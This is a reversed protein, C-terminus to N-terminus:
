EVGRLYHGKTIGENILKEHMESDQVEFDNDIIDIYAKVIERIFNEEEFTFELRFASIGSNYMDELHDIMCLIKSNYIISRCFKDQSVPFEQGKEDKLLYKSQNCTGCRKDKNCNRTLVGMPCYESIMLPIRSYVIAEAEIDVYSLVQKIEHLNLEPSLGISKINENQLHKITESNFVNLYYDAYMTYDSLKNIMGINSVLFEDIGMDIAEDLINYQNNRLIRPPCYVINKNHEKCVNMADKLTDIDEYYITDINLDAIKRLQSMKRIKVNVKTDRVDKDLKEKDEVEIKSLKRKNLNKRKNNLKEVAERRIENLISVPMSINEDKDILISKLEYPTNGLKSLQTEIKEDSLAVKIAKEVKKTGVVKVKNDDNDKILLSPYEDLKLIIKGKIPIKKIEVENEYTRRSRDLLESDLTKYVEQGIQIPINFDLQITDGEHAETLIDNNKLIRGVNGGGISLGDGKKLTNELKLTIKNRRKDVDVVKGIYLGTNNPKEPNMIEKGSKELIYGKTFKRNFISYLDDLTEKKVKLKKNTQYYDLVERYSGVVTAVYEARKMRGEIKLSLVGTDIIKDLEEITNLDRPSLLYKDDLNVSSNNSKDILDYVKRCPQACRGRNGSRGGIMSSMLCQGSYCVCLAGHVFVEIDVSTNKSIYEIESIELERALVVRKFGLKELYKVDELSHAVMQTSAHIEFDPFHEKVLKTMGIDQLILADVDVNYLFNIYKLFYNIESEKVLTNVTVYVKVDRIHAYAVAQKMEETDFNNASARAGFSKGGLYVANAGNSVAARLADFSGVPALLEINSM